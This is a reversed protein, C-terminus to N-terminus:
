GRDSLTQRILDAVAVKRQENYEPALWLNIVENGWMEGEISSDVNILSPFFNHLPPYNTGVDHGGLRLDRIVLDRRRLIRAIFRWPSCQELPMFVIDDSIDSLIKEWESVQKIRALRKHSFTELATIISEDFAEPLALRAASKEYPLFNEYLRCMNPYNVERNQLLRRLSVLQQEIVQAKEDLPPYSAVRKRMENVIDINDSLLAGGSGGDIVKGSGFSVLLADGAPNKPLSDNTLARTASTDNELVFWGRDRSVALTNNYDRHFGYLHTPMVVGPREEKRIAAAFAEDSPLGTEKEVDVTIIKANASVGAAVISPCINSPIVFTVKKESGLTELLATIASRARGFIVAANYGFFEAVSTEM